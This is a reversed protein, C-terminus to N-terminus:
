DSPKGKTCTERSLWLSVHSPQMTERVVKLLDVSLTELDTDDRLKTSFAETTERANYKKRYFLRDIFARIRNRLPAFLIAILLTSAVVTLESGSESFLQFLQELLVVSGYYAVALLVTLSGYLLTRSIILDIDYLRYRLVAFGISM